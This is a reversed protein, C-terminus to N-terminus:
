FGDDFIKGTIIRHCNLCAVFWFDVLWPEIDNFNELDEKTYCEDDFIQHLGARHGFDSEIRQYALRKSGCYPCKDIKIADLLEKKWDYM